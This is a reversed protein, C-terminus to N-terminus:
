IMDSAQEKKFYETFHNLTTHPLKKSFNTFQISFYSRELMSYILKTMEGQM